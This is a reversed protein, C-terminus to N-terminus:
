LTGTKDSLNSIHMISIADDKSMYSFHIRCDSGKFSVIAVDNFSMVKQMLDHCGDCLYQEYTFNKDM